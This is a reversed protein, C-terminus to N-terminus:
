KLLILHRCTRPGPQSARRTHHRWRKRPQSHKEAMTFKASRAALVLDGLASVLFDVSLVDGVTTGSVIEYNLIQELSEM